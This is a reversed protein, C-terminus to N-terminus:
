VRWSKWLARARLTLSCFIPPRRTQRHTSRSRTPFLDKRRDVEPDPAGAGNVTVSSGGATGVGGAVLVSRWSDFAMSGPELVVCRLTRALALDWSLGAVDVVAVLSSILAGVLHCRCPRRCDRHRHFWGCRRPRCRRDRRRRCHLPSHYLVM